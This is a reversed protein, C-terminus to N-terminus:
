GASTPKRRLERAPVGGVIAGVAVDGTVVAGAAISAGDGITVGPLIVAQAGILVHDGIVVPARRPTDGQGWPRDTVSYICVNSSINCARGITIGGTGALVCNYGLHCDAGIRISGDKGAVLVTQCYLKTRDGLSVRSPDEFRVRGISLGKAGFGSELLRGRLRREAAFRHDPHRLTALIGGIRAILSACVFACHFAFSKM